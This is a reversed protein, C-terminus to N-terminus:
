EEPPTSTAWPAPEPGSIRMHFPKDLPDRPTTSFPKPARRVPLDPAQNSPNLLRRSGPTLFAAGAASRPRVTRSAPTAAAIASAGPQPPHAPPPTRLARCWTSRSVAVRMHASRFRLKSMRLRYGWVASASSRRSVATRSYDRPDTGAFPPPRRAERGTGPRDELRDAFSTGARAPV